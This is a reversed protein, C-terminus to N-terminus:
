GRKKYVNKCLLLFICLFLAALIVSAIQAPYAAKQMFANYQKLTFIDKTDMKLSVIDVFAVKGIQEAKINEVRFAITQGYELDELRETGIYKCINATVFLATDYERTQIEVGIHKGTDTIMIKEVTAAYLTTTNETQNDVNSVAVLLGIAGFFLFLLVVLVFYLCRKRNM